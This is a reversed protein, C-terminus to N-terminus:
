PFGKDFFRGLYVDVLDRWFTESSFTEVSFNLLSMRQLSIYSSFGRGFFYLSMEALAFNFVCRWRFVHFMGVLCDGM